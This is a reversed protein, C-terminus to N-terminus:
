GPSDPLGPNERLWRRVEEAESWRGREVLLQVQLELVGRLPPFLTPMASIHAAYLRVAEGSAHLAASSAGIKTLVFALLSLSTALDPEHAAPSDAALRRRIEVAEETVALAEAWSGVESLYTGLNSLSTALGPEHAAPSDAALRRRIKVAEQEATLAEARSGVESLYTGLNSLSVALGPEHAAPSDAVLRRRIEVAEETVALAEAWSGVESLYTGLNSLSVALGPEHAAPSDAVLRRRIEVAEQEATLAEVWSGVGSLRIGLNSLSAALDPEHAAPSDAVLRRRIEVAEEAVALAEARRGVESLLVGLNSLSAALDPEHAAPSGVALRRRIEVAEEAVALAEVWRGVESLRIGLNSLSVAFDPEHAAPSGVALRRWIEVAEEAVALAEVWRGVESLLVGLNSLSAALDPEHAAPSDAALRRRIKVAEQEATLAEARSGVESLYTGLNSLSVALGPEHAAPSGVALRRRIEVAEEAVALAEVRSGVGSLYTGLNSLSVALGPEHAAPSGVALRRRIEVAEEAVALAEVWRGVESLRIGLNSLSAALGPEYAAPSDAALQRSTHTLDTTLRLALAATIHSPRPLATTATQLAQHTLPTNDLATNLHHLVHDSDTARGTNYHAIAARALVTVLQAQQGPGATALLPALPLNDKILTRSAHYEAIRDPQLSGWYHDGDAPYLTRLWAATSDAKDPPLGPTQRAAREAEAHDAAGCLAAIAVARSLVRTPLDLEFAPTDASDKWFRAEHGLLTQELDTGSPADVPDPGHQLLGVLAALHLTLVNDYRPHDLDDAPHLLAAVAPWDHAPLNPLHALRRALDHAAHTFATRREQVPRSTPILPDLPTIPAAELLERVTPTANFADTRWEGDSRAILLLRVRHRSRHIHTILSRLLRPRTEAYDVVLLLPLSTTLTTLDPPHTGPTPTDSLDSHLHGTAWGQHSLLDALRRALRTKGQGGPGTIVRLAVTNPGTTCWTILDALESTRGHFTVTEADARLLAAPTRHNREAAAPKLLTAPEVPELAPEWGTHRGVLERFDEDALLAAAPTATLRTGGTAQRDKRVVGCLLDQGQGDDALVAAGSVGSWITGSRVPNASSPLPTTSTIEYRSALSGTGPAIHGTLQEDLRQGADDKQLRPFGTLAVPQPRTGIFLGYRQPPRTLVDTLSEPVPWDGTDDTVEILAADVAADQRQWRVKAEFHQEVGTDPRCITVAGPAAADRGDVVHAATLVLRPAVLYGSGFGKTDKGAKRVRIQM